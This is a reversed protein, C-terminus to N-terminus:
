NVFSASAKISDKDINRGILLLYKQKLAYEEPLLQLKQIHNKIGQIFIPGNPSMVLGKVRMIDKGHCHLLASLWIVLDNWNTDQKLKIKLAFIKDLQKKEEPGLSQRYIVSQKDKSRLLKKEGKVSSFIMASKNALRLFNFLVRGKKKSILDVKSLILEDASIIQNNILPEEKLESLDSTSDVLVIIKEILIHKSLSLDKVVGDYISAPDSVGSTEVVLHTIVESTGLKKSTKRNCLSRLYELFEMKKTCCICGDSINIVPLQGSLLIDDVGDQAFENVLLVTNKCVQHNMFHQLYTTKGAGLYGSVITIKIRNDLSNIGLKTVVM